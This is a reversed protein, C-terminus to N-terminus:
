ANDNIRTFGYKSIFEEVEDEFTKRHHHEEQNKIYNIVRELHSESVSVAFYDDQWAFKDPTLHLQNIWHSSEGKILQTIQAISQEKGMSILGHLHDTAGNITKLYIGKQQCNEIIHHQLQHRIPNNLFGQRSKTAFVLHVWIRIYSM